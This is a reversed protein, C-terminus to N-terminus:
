FTFTIVNTIYCFVRDFLRQEKSSEIWSLIRFIFKVCSNEVNIIIM